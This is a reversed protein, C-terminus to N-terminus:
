SKESRRSLLFISVVSFVAFRTQREESVRLSLRPNRADRQFRRSGCGQAEQTTPGEGETTSQKRFDPKTRERLLDRTAQSLGSLGEM